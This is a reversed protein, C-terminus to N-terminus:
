HLIFNVNFAAKMVLELTASAISPIPSIVIDLMPRNQASPWGESYSFIVIRNGLYSIDTQPNFKAESAHLHIRRSYYGYSM